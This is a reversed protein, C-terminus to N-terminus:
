LIALFAQCYWKILAFYPPQLNLRNLQLPTGTIRPSRSCKSCSLSNLQIKCNLPKRNRRRGRIHILCLACVFVRLGVVAYGPLVHTVNKAYRTTCQAHLYKCEAIGCHMSSLTSNWAGTAKGRGGTDVTYFTVHAWSHTHVYHRLSSSRTIDPILHWWASETHVYLQSREYMVASSENCSHACEQLGGMFFVYCACSQASYVAVTWHLLWPYSSFFSFGYNDRHKVLYRAM